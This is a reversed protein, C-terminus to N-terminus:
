FKQCVKLIGWLILSIKLNSVDSKNQPVHDWRSVYFAFSSKACFVSTVHDEDIRSLRSVLNPLSLWMNSAIQFAALSYIYGSRLIAACTGFIVKIKVSAGCKAIQKRGYRKWHSVLRSKKTTKRKLVDFVKVM